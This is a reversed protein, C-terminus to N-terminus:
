FTFSKFHEFVFESKTIIQHDTEVFNIYIYLLVNSEHDGAFSLSLGFVNIFLIIM